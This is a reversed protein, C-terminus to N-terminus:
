GDCGCRKSLTKTDTFFKNWYKIAQPYNGTKVCLEVAKFRLIMNIFGKPIECCKNVEKVYQLTNKYIPYLNIVTGMIPNTLLEEPTDASPTGTAIVYVFFMNGCFPLGLEESTLSLRANKSDAPAKYTYLPTNSPGDPIYTNQTDIVISDITVNDFYKLSDVSVDVIFFKSDSSIRLENWVLM